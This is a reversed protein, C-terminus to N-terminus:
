RTPSEGAMLDAAAHDGFFCCASVPVAWEPGGAAGVTLWHAEQFGINM